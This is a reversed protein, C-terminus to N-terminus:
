LESWVDESLASDQGPQALGSPSLAQPPKIHSKLHSLSVWMKLIEFSRAISTAFRVCIQETHSAEKRLKREKALQLSLVGLFQAQVRVRSTNCSNADPGVSLQPQEKAKPTAPHELATRMNCRPPAPRGFVVYYAFMALFCCLNKSTQPCLDYM